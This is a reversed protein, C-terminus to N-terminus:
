LVEGFFRRFNGGLLKEIRAIPHRRKILAETLKPLDRVDKMGKPLAIMGDFDSGLGVGEEGMVNVAHELHRVLDEFTKGGLFVPAFIIGVVGGKEAIAKLADDDLNRWSRKAGVVGGHSCFPRAKPHALMEALTSRSAHAIDLAMGIEAMTDLVERGLPSLPRNGMLPFSSGGLENNALHTLGIFRVGRQHLEAVREVKGEIAHGGEVGVVASLAGNALNAELQAGSAAISAKGASRRCFDAMRDLQWTCRAWEGRQAHPPWNRKRVFLGFGDVFPIGRTVVTFCQIKVGAQQLRPFDVHGEESQVTLDRNWMLSDAHGDAICATRHLATIDIVEESNM